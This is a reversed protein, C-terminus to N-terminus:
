KNKKKELLLRCVLNDHSQLESTHEESRAPHDAAQRVPELAGRGRRQGRRLIPLADHLSLTYIETTATDNFFFFFLLFGCSSRALPPSPPRPVPALRRRAASAHPARVTKALAPSPSVREKRPKKKLCFVAYSIITHSSNLRTSKRDLACTQGGSSPM